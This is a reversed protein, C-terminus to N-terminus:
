IEKHLGLAEIARIEKLDTIEDYYRILVRPISILRLAKIKIIYDKTVKDRFYRYEISDINVTKDKNVKNNTRGAM